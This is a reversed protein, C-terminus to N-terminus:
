ADKDTKSHRSPIHFPDAIGPIPIGLFRSEGLKYVPKGEVGTKLRDRQARYKSPLKSTLDKVMALDRDSLSDMNELTGIVDGLSYKLEYGMELQILASRVFASLANGKVGELLWLRADNNEIDAELRKFDREHSNLKVETITQNGRAVKELADSISRAKEDLDTQIKALRTEQSEAM